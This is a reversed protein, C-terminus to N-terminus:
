ADKNGRLLRGLAFPIKMLLYVIWGALAVPWFIIIAWDTIGDMEDRIGGTFGAAVLAGFVYLGLAEM